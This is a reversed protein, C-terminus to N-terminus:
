RNQLTGVWSPSVSEAPRGRKVCRICKQHALERGSSEQTAAGIQGQTRVAKRYEAQFDAAEAMLGRLEEQKGHAQLTSFFFFLLVFVSRTASNM